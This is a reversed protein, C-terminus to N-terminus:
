YEIGERAQVGNDYPHCIKKMCTVYDCCKELEPVPRHGTLIIEREGLQQLQQLWCLFEETQLLGNDVLSGAEDLVVMGFDEKKVMTQIERLKEKYYDRLEQKEELTMQFLFKLRAPGELVCITRVENLIKREHSDNGKLFQCFLVSGDMGAFRVAAGVAASTKGKGDGYYFHLMVTLRRKEEWVNSCQLQRTRWKRGGGGKNGTDNGPVDNKAM